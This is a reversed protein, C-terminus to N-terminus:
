SFCPSDLASYSIIESYRHVSKRLRIIQDLTLTATEDLGRLLFLVEGILAWHRDIDILASRFPAISGLQSTNHILELIRIPM